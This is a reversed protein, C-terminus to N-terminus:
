PYMEFVDTNQTFCYIKTGRKIPFERAHFKIKFEGKPIKKDSLSEFTKNQLM